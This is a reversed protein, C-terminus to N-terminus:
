FRLRKNLLCNYLMEIVFCVASLCWGMLLLYFAPQMHYLKFSYYGNLPHILAIKRFNSKIENMRLSIWFNYIGAEVVRDIIEKVRELLPDGYFMIMSRGNHFAVGDEIRCLLPESNEGVSIGQAFTEEAIMNDILISVNKQYMAWNMCDVNSPCNVHNREINSLETEGNKEFMFNYATPYAFNIGSAFLEDMNRIPTKYGSDILFTTLFAQFVTSFALSFCVWAFFLLRLSPTRPMTSVSVGLIVAWMNTLSSTLTKYVQLESVRCYRGILTTCIAAIVISIILVIWLEVSLIRFISSWRPYKVSCPVYWSFSTMTHLNTSDISSHLIYHTGVTGLAIYIEKALMGSVLHNLNIEGGLDFGHPTPVHVFTMNLWALVILLLDYESGEVYMEDNVQSNNKYVYNTTFAWYGNRVVAKLPCGNFRKSFKQPFFDTNKIFHGQASVIWSDLLTIDNVETCRDSSQYPFWTYVGLNIGTDVDNINEMRSYEKDIAYSEQSVIICNYIRFRSFHDFIEKQVSVSFENTGAVVFRAKSNWLKTFKYERSSLGMFVENFSKFSGDPTLIIYSGVRGIFNTKEPTSINGDVAVVVSWIATRHIEAILQQQVDRYTAPSSIVVTRGRTFYRHSIHTLCRVLQIEKLTLSTFPLLEGNTITSFLLIVLLIIGFKENQLFEVCTM